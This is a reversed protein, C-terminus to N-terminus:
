KLGFSPAYQICLGEEQADKAKLRVKEDFMVAHTYVSNPVITCQVKLVHGLTVPQGAVKMGDIAEAMAAIVKAQVAPNSQLFEVNLSIDKQEGFFQNYDRDGFIHLLKDRCEKAPMKTYQSKRTFRVGGVNPSNVVISAHLEGDELSQTRLATDLEPILKSEAVKRDNEATQERRKADMWDQLVPETEPTADIVPTKSKKATTSSTAFLNTIDDLSSPVNSKVRKAM